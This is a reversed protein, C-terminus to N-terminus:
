GSFVVEALNPWMYKTFVPSPTQPRVGNHLIFSILNQLGLIPPRFEEPQAINNGVHHVCDYFNEPRGDIFEDRWGLPEWVLFNIHQGFISLDNWYLSCNIPVLFAFAVTDSLNVSPQFAVRTDPSHCDIEIEVSIPVTAKPDIQIGLFPDIICAGHFQPIRFNSLIRDVLGHGLVEYMFPYDHYIGHSTLNCLPLGNNSCTVNRHTETTPTDTGTSATYLETSQIDAETTATYTGTTPIDTVTSPIYTEATSPDTGTTSIDRQTTPKATETAATVIGTTATVTETTPKMKETTLTGTKTNPKDTVTAAGDKEIKGQSIGTGDLIADQHELHGNNTTRSPFSPEIPLPLRGYIRIDVIEQSSGKVRSPGVPGKPQRYQVMLADLNNRSGVRAASTPVHYLLAFCIIHTVTIGANAVM